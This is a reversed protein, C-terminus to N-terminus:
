LEKSACFIYKVCNFFSGLTSKTSESKRNICRRAKMKRKITRQSGANSCKSDEFNPFGSSGSKTLTLKRRKLNIINPSNLHNPYVMDPAERPFKPNEEKITLSIMSDGDFSNKRSRGLSFFEKKIENYKESDNTFIM